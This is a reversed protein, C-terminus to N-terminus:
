DKPYGSNRRDNEHFWREEENPYYPDRLNFAVRLAVVLILLVIACLYALFESM